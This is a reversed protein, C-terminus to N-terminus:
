TRFLAGLTDRKEKVGALKLADWMLAQNASIVPKKLDAELPEIIELTRLNTCPLYVAQAEPRDSAIAWRYLEQPPFSFIAEGSQLDPGIFSVVEIKSQALFTRLRDNIDKWYPTAVAIRRVDLKKFARMIATSATTAPCNLGRRMKSMLDEDTGAGNWFSGGNSSYAVCDPNIMRFLSCAEQVPETECKPEMALRTVHVTVGPPVMRFYEDDLAGDEPYLIGIRARWGSMGRAGQLKGSRQPFHVAAQSQARAEAVVAGFVAAREALRLFERRKLRSGEKNRTMM